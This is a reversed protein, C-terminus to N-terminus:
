SLWNIWWPITCNVWLLDWDSAALISFVEILGWRMRRLTITTMKQTHTHTHTHTDTQRNGCFRICVENIRRFCPTMCLITKLTNTTCAHRHSDSFVSRELIFNSINLGIRNNLAGLTQVMTNWKHQEVGHVSVRYCLQITCMCAHYQVEYIITMNMKLLMFTCTYIDNLQFDLGWEFCLCKIKYQCFGGICPLLWSAHAVFDMIYLIVRHSLVM